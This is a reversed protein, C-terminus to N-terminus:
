VIAEFIRKGNPYDNWSSTYEKDTNFSFTVLYGTSQNRSDLYGLLQEYARQHLKDGHWIKLEIIHEEGGYTVVIDMRTTNRTQPEVYYFGTGNIIPKLFCLFILRGEDELFTKRKDTYECKMFEQFKLIVREMNLKGDEIFQSREYRLKSRLDMRLKRSIYYNYLFIEFIKNSVKTYNGEDTEEKSLIGFIVGLEVASDYYNFPYRSGTLIIDELLNSFDPYRNINKVVDDFLLNPNDLIVKVASQVGSVTWEQNLREHITKCVKSVLYPYGSTYSYIENSIAQIDMGTHYDNEYDVLMTSIESPNFSMDVNFDTAINWPSNYRAEDESRIKLKLNKIDYVGALIVSKFTYDKRAKRDLYKNRLMGLFGLLVKNDSNKDVEDILLIIPRDTTKCLHTIRFDLEGLANDSPFAELMFNIKEDPVGLQKLRRYLM